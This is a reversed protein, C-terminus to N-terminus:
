GGVGGIASCDYVRPARKRPTAEADASGLDATTHVTGVM